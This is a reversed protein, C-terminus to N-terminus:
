DDGDSELLEDLADMLVVLEAFGTLGEGALELGIAFVELEVLVVPKAGGRAELVVKEDELVNALMGASGLCGKGAVEDPVLRREEVIVGNPVCRFFAADRLAHGEGFGVCILIKVGLEGAETLLIVIVPVGDVVGVAEIEDIRVGGVERRLAEILDDLEGLGGEFFVDLETIGIAAEGIIKGVKGMGDGPVIDPAEAGGRDLEVRLAHGGGVLAGGVADVGAKV